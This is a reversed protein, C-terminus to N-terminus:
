VTPLRCPNPAVSFVCQGGLRNLKESDRFCVFYDLGCFFVELAVKDAYMEYEVSDVEYVERLVAIEKRTKRYLEEGFSASKDPFEGRRNEIDKITNKIIFQPEAVILELLHNYIDEPADFYIDTLESKNIRSIDSDALLLDLFRKSIETSAFKNNIVLLAFDAFFDAEM